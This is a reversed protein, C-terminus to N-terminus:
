DVAYATRQGLYGKKPFKSSALIYVYGINDDPIREPNLHAPFNGHKYIISVQDDIINKQGLMAQILEWHRPKLSLVARIANFTDEPDGVFIINM